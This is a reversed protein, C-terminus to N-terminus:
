LTRENSENEDYVVISGVLIDHIAKKKDHASVTLLSVIGLLAKVLFRIIALPFLINRNLDNERKVRIGILIHGITGGLFSTFIPDYLVFIFIFTLIRVFGPVSDFNSFIYVAGIMFLGIIASDTIAAKVRESVDPFNQEM